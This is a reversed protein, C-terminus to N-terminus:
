GASSINDAYPSGSHNLPVPAFAALAESMRRGYIFEAPEGADHPRIARMRPM